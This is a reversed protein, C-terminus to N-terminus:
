GAAAARVAPLASASGALLLDAIGRPDDWFPVHGWGRPPDVWRTHAPLEERLRCGQGAFILDRNGFAITVPVDIVMGGVFRLHEATRLVSEFGTCRRVAQVQATMEPRSLRWPRGFVNATMAVRVPPLAGVIDVGREGLALPVQRLMRVQTRMHLPPTRWLGAPSVGTVSAVAGARALELGIWGGLSNGAVHPREVGIEALFEAVTRALGRPSMDQGHKMPTRGFGPLDVTVVHRHPTLLPVVPDWCRGWSGIGHVLLLAPGTGARSHELLSM